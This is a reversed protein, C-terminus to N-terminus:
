LSEMVEITKFTRRRKDFKLPKTFTKLTNYEPAAKFAVLKGTKKEVYYLHPQYNFDGVLGTTEKIVEIM